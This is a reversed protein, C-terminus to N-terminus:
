CVYLHHPLLGLGPRARRYRAPTTGCLATFDHAMHAEDFYGATQAVDAIRGGNEGALEVLARDLRALRAFRRMSIGAAQKAFARLRRPEEASERVIESPRLRGERDCRQVASRLRSPIGVEPESGLFFSDFVVAAQAIDGCRAIDRVLGATLPSASLDASRGLGTRACRLWPPTAFDKFRVGFLLSSGTAALYLPRERFVTLWCSSYSRL